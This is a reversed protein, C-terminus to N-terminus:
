RASYIPDHLLETLLQTTWELSCLLDVALPRSRDLVLTRCTMSGVGVFDERDSIWEILAMSASPPSYSRTNQGLIHGLIAVDASPRRDCNCTNMSCRVELQYAEIFLRILNM